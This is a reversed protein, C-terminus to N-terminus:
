SYVSEIEPSKQEIEFNSLSKIKQIEISFDISQYVRRFYQDIKM